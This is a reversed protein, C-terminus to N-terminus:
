GRRGGVAALWSDEELAGREIGECEAVIRDVWGRGGDATGECSRRLCDMGGGDAAKVGERGEGKEIEVM